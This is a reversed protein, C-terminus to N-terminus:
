DDISVTRHCESTVDRPVLALMSLFIKEVLQEEDLWDPTFQAGLEDRLMRAAVKKMEDTVVM